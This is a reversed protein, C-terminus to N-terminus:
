ILDPPPIPIELIFDRKLAQLRYNKSAKISNINRLDLHAIQLDKKENKSNEELKEQEGTDKEDHLEIFNQSEDHLSSFMSIAPLTLIGLVLALIALKQFSSQINYNDPKM